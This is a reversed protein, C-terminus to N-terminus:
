QRNHVRDAIVQPNNKALLTRGVAKYDIPCQHETSYRCTTCFYGGCACPYQLIGMLKQCNPCRTKKRTSTTLSLSEIPMTSKIVVNEDEIEVPTDQQQQIKEEVKKEKSKEQIYCRSCLGDFSLNGFFGCNNRCLKSSSKSTSSM